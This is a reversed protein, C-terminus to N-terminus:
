LKHNNNITESSGEKFEKEFRQLTLKLKKEVEAFDPVVKGMYLLMLACQVNKNTLTKYFNATEKRYVERMLRKIRNRDVARKFNRKSVVMAVQAPVGAKLETELWSLRFPYQSLSKGEEVLREILKRSTLREAKSFTERV